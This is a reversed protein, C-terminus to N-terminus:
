KNGFANMLMILTFPLHVLAQLKWAAKKFSAKADDSGNEICKLLLPTFLTQAIAFMKLVSESTPDFLYIAGMAILMAGSFRAFFRGVAGEADATYVIPSNGSEAFMNPNSYLGIGYAAHYIAGAMNLTETDFNIGDGGRLRLAPAAAQKNPVTFALASCVLALM